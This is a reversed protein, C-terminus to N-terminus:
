LNKYHKEYYKIERYSLYLFVSLLIFTNLPALWFPHKQGFSELIILAGLMGISYMAGNKLSAYKSILDIGRVTFERVVLAGIGNGILILPVFITFAGIVGDLSFSADL